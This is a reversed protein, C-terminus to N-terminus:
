QYLHSLSDSVIKNVDQIVQALRREAEFLNAISPNMSIVQFTQEMKDMEEQEPMEGMMMKQQMQAQRMRFDEFMRKSEADAAVEKMAADVALAESSEQLARALDHARDYVNSMTM